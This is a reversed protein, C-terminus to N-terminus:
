KQIYLRGEWPQLKESPEKINSMILKLSGKGGGEPWRLECEQESFNLIVIALGGDKSRKEFTWSLENGFDHVKYSGLMLLESHAKRIQIMSKWFALVGDSSKKQDAVNIKKYNDNVRMWPTGTTFGANDEGSWQVPTRANDRGTAVIGKWARRLLEKDHPHQRELERYYNIAWIDKLDDISWSEPVNTMGIEEGQYVFLTGSLTTTMMCLVKAAREWYELKGTGHRSVSRPTDHNEKFTTGWGKGTMVLDQIKQIATKAESLKYSHIEHPPLDMGGGLSTHDFDFICSLEREESSVYKMITDFDAGGLEGVMMPDGYQDLVERRIEKWWEHMRPGDMIGKIPNGWPKFRGTVEGDM